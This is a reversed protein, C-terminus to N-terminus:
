LVYVVKASFMVCVLDNVLEQLLDTAHQVDEPPGELRIQDQEETFEIHVQVRVCVHLSSWRSVAAPCESVVSHGSSSQGSLVLRAPTLSM